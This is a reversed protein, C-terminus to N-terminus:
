HVIMPFGRHRIVNLLSIRFKIKSKFPLDKNAILRLLSDKIYLEFSLMKLTFKLFGKNSTAKIPIGKNKLM